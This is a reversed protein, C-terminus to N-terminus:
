EKTPKSQSNRQELAISAKLIDAKIRDQNQKDLSQTRKDETKM